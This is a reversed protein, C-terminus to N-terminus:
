HATLAGTILSNIGGTASAKRKLLANDHAIRGAEQRLEAALMKQMYAQCRLNTVQAQATLYPNSGPSSLAVQSEMKAATQLITNEGQDSILTTKLNEQALADDIDMMVRDQASASNVQPITGFNTVFSSQLAPIQSSQQSHLITEFQQPAPLTASSYPTRFNMNMVNSYATITNAVFGRAQNIQALPWMTVQYLEKEDQTIQNIAKLSVGIDNQISNFIADFIGLFQARVSLPLLLLAVAVLAGMTTLRKWNGNCFGPRRALPLDVRQGNLLVANEETATKEHKM